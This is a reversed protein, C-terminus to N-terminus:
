INSVSGKKPRYRFRETYGRALEDHVLDKKKRTGFTNYFVTCGGDFDDNLYILVSLVSRTDENQIFTADRHPKFHMRSFYQNYRFCKNIKDPEWVGDTGFGCPKANALKPDTGIHNEIKNFLVSAFNEDTTLLRNGEREKPLFEDQLSSYKESSNQILTVCELDTM